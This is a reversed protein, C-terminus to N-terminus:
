ARAADPHRVVLGLEPFYVKDIPTRAFTRLADLPTEVIPERDNFSTNLLVPLGSAAHWTSIMAHLRPTLERHVTQVRATGDLHVIAKVRESVEPRVPVAFSMYPSEFRADCDFWQTAHEALVMPAFPRFWQRHKITENIRDKMGEFGPHALISRNGLARRGSESSGHFVAVIEGDLLSRALAADDWPDGHMGTERLAAEVDDRGYHRGMGFPAMGDRLRSELGFVDHHMLQGAGISLGGDYPAPPTYV